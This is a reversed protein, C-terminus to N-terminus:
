GLLVLATIIAAAEFYVAPEGGHGRFAEPLLDRVLTTVVSYGYATGTGIAILIFMNLSRNVLSAWGRQFFPWGGWLVVPTALALQLWTLMRGSILHSVPAGVLMEAIALLLLPASLALSVWFRRTMDELEPNDEESTVTRPELAM